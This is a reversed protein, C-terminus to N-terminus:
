GGPDAALYRGPDGGARAGPDLWRRFGAPDAGVVPVAVLVSATCTGLLVVLGSGVLWLWISRCAAHHGRDARKRVSTSMRFEMEPPPASILDGRADGPNQLLM